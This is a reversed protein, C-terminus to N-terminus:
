EVCELEFPLSTLEQLFEGLEQIDEDNYRWIFKVQCDNNAFYNETLKVFKSMAQMSSSNIYEFNFIVHLKDPSGASYDKLWDFVDRYWLECNSPLSYGKISLEGTSSFLVEPTTPTSEIFLNSVSTTNQLCM